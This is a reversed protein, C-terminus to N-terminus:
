FGTSSRSTRAGNSRKERTTCRRPTWFRRTRTMIPSNTVTERYRFVTQHRRTFLCNQSKSFKRAQMRGALHVFRDFRSGRTVRYLYLYSFLTNRVMSLSVCLRKFHGSTDGKIDKELSHGYESVVCV